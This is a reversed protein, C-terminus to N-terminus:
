QEHGHSDSTGIKGDRNHIWLEAQQSGSVVRGEEIAERGTEHHSSARKAGSRKVNRGGNPDPVVYHAKPGKKIAM